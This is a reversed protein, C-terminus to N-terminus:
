PNCPNSFQGAKLDIQNPPNFIPLISFNLYLFYKLKEEYINPQLNYFYLSLFYQKYLNVRM